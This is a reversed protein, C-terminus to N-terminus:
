EIDLVHVEWEEEEQNEVLYVFRDKNIAYFKLGLGVMESAFTAPHVVPLYVKKLNSGKLDMIIYEQKNDRRKFTQIYIKHNDVLIDKIPPIFGPYILNAWKKFEEWGAEMIHFPVFLNVKKHLFDEKLHNEVMKKYEVPVKMKEHKKEIQYLKKGEPDFVEILFGGPSEEIFIKDDYVRFNLADPIMPIANAAKQFQVPFEQKYLEKIEKMQSDCLKIAWYTKGSGDEYPFTKIVFKEKLPLIKTIRNFRQERILKGQKTFFIVKDFGQVFVYGPYVTFSNQFAAMVKLEGPGEGKQGFKRLLTLDKISYVYITAGELVYLEDGSVQIMEPVLVEKLTRPHAASVLSTMLLSLIVMFMIKKMIFLITFASKKM